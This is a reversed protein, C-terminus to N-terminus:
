KVQEEKLKGSLIQGNAGTNFLIKPTNEAEVLISFGWGAAL